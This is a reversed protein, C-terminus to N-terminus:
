YLLTIRLKSNSFENASKWNGVVDLTMTVCAHFTNIPGDSIRSRELSKKNASSTPDECNELGGENTTYSPVQTCLDPSLIVIQKNNIALICLKM